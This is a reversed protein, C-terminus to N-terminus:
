APGVLRRIAATMDADLFKACITENAKLLEDPKEGGYRDSVTKASHGSIIEYIERKIESYRAGEIWTHRLEHIVKPIGHKHRSFWKSAEHSMKLKLNSPRPMDFMYADSPLRSIHAALPERILEIIPMVHPKKKKTYEAPVHICGLTDYWEKKAAVPEGLRTGTTLLIVFIWASWSGPELTRLKTLIEQPTWSTRGSSVAEPVNIRSLDPVDTIEAERWGHRIIASVIELRHNISGPALSGAAKLKTRWDTLHRRRIADLGRVNASKKFEDIYRRAEDQTQQPRNRAGIWQGYAWDITHVAYTSQRYNRVIEALEARTRTWVGPDDPDNLEFILDRLEENWFKDVENYIRDEEESLYEVVNSVESRDALPIHDLGRDLWGPESDAARFIQGIFGGIRADRDRPYGDPGRQRAAQLRAEFEVDHIKELRKAETHSKTRLSFRVKGKGAFADRVDPPVVRRYYWTEGILELHDGSRVSRM